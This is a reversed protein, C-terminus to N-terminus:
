MFSIFYLKTVHGPQDKAMITIKRSSPCLTYKIALFDM